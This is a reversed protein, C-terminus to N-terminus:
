QRSYKPLSNVWVLVYCPSVGLWCSYICLCYLAPQASHIISHWPGRLCSCMCLIDWSVVHFANKGCPLSQTSCTCNHVAQVDICYLLRSGSLPYQWSEAVIKIFALLLTHLWFSVFHSNNLFLAFAIHSHPSITFTVGCKWFRMFGTWRQFYM